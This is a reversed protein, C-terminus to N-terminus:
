KGLQAELEKIREKAARYEAAFGSIAVEVAKQIDAETTIIVRNQPQPKESDAKLMPGGLKEGLYLWGINLEPYVEAIRELKGRSFSNKAAVVTGPLLGCEKEFTNVDIGKYHIFALLRAKISNDLNM